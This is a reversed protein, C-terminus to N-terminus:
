RRWFSPNLVVLVTFIELRGLLMAFSCVWTQFDTLFAFNAAPGVEHLGPGTNSLMALIASFATILELGSFTLILTFVVILMSYTFAFALVAFLIHAAVAERGLKVPYIANPHLSRMLERKVQKWLIVARGM